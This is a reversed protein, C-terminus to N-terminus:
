HGEATMRKLRKGALEAARSGSYRKLTEELVGRAHEWDSLEYFSYGLKLAAAPAKESNPHAKLVKLFEQRAGEYNRVAYKAEGLWYQANISLPSSKHDNIFTKFADISAKNNGDRLLSFAKAYASQIINSDAPKSTSNEPQTSTAPVPTSTQVDKITTSNSSPNSDFLTQLQKDIDLFNEHQLNKLRDLEYRLSENNGRLSNMEQELGDIRQYLENSNTPTEAIAIIPLSVSLSTLCLFLTKGLPGQM